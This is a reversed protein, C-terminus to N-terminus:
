AILFHTLGRSCNRGWLAPLACATFCLFHLVRCLVSLIVSHNNDSLHTVFFTSKWSNKSPPYHLIKVYTLQSATGHTPPLTSFSVFNPTLLLSLLPTLLSAQSTSVTFSILVLTLGSGLAGQVHSVTHLLPSLIGPLPKLLLFVHAIICSLLFSKHLMDWLLLLTLSHSVLECWIVLTGFMESEFVLFFIWKVSVKVLVWGSTLLPFTLSCQNKM